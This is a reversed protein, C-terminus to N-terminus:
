KIVVPTNAAVTANVEYGKPLVAKTGPTLLGWGATFAGIILALPTRNRGYIKAQTDAFYLGEGNEMILSPFDIILRGKTGCLSSKRSDVVRGKVITGQSVVCVDDVVIDRQVRFDIKQGNKIEKARVQKVAVLPVITGAKVIVQKEAFIAVPLAILLLLLTLNKM